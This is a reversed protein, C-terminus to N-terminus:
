WVPLAGQRAQSHISAHSLCERGVDCAKGATDPSGHLKALAAYGSTTALVCEPNRLVRATSLVSRTRSNLEGFDAPVRQVEVTQKNLYADASAM